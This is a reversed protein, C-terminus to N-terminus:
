DIGERSRNQIDSSTATVFEVDARRLLIFGLQRVDLEIGM